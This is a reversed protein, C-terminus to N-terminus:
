AAGVAGNVWSEYEDHTRGSLYKGQWSDDAALEGSFTSQGTNVLYRWMFHSYVDMIHLFMAQAYGRNGGIVLMVEDNSFGAKLGLNDSAAGVVRPNEGFPDIVIVKSHIIAHADPLKLLEKHWDQWGAELASAAIITPTKKRNNFMMVQPKPAVPAAGDIHLPALLGSPLEGFGSPVTTDSMFSALSSTGSGWKKPGSNERPLAQASSVAGRIFLEPRKKQMWTVVDLFSPFGPYFALFYIGQKAKLLEDKAVRTSAALDLLPFTRQGPVNKPKTREQTSPSFVVQVTTGDPLTILPPLEANKARYEPSQLIGGLTDALTRDYYDLAVGALEPSDIYTAYNAQTYFGTMTANASKFMVKRPKRKGDTVVDLKNHGLFAPDLMRRKLNKGKLKEAAPANTEDDKGAASLVMDWIDRHEALYDVLGPESLEYYLSYVHWAERIADEFPLRIFNPLYAGLKKAIISEPDKLAAILGAPDPAGEPTKPLMDALWQSSVLHGRNVCLKVFPGYDFGLTAESTTFSPGPKLNGPKGIMATIRWKYRGGEKATGDVWKCGQIPYDATTGAKGDKKQGKFRVLRSSLITEKNGAAVDIQTISFGLCDPIKQTLVWVIMASANNTLPVGRFPTDKNDTSNM